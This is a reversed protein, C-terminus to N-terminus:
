QKKFVTIDPLYKSKIILGNMDEKDMIKFADKYTNLIPKGAVNFSTNLLVPIQGQNKAETLLDYMLENQERTVTQIRATGDEHTISALSDRYEKKVYAAFNM